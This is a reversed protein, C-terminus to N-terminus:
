APDGSSRDIIAPVLATQQPAEPEVDVIDQPIVRERSRRLKDGLDGVNEVTLHHHQGWRAPFEREARWAVARFWERARALNLPDDAAQIQIEADELRAETGDERAVLYEPHGRYRISLAARSVGLEEAIRAVHEGAKVRALVVDDDVHALAGANNGLTGKRAEFPKTIRKARKLGKDMREYKHQKM